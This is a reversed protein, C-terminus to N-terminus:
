GRNEGGKVGHEGLIRKEGRERAGGKLGGIWNQGLFFLTQGRTRGPHGRAVGYEEPRIFDIHFTGGGWHSFPGGTAGRPLIRGM